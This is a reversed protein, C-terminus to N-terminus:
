GGNFLRYKKFKNRHEQTVPESAFSTFGYDWDPEFFKILEIGSDKLKEYAKELEKQNKVQLVILSSPENEKDHKLHIGSELAAHATQVIIQEIPLDKRIFV